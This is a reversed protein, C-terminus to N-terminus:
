SRKQLGDSQNHNQGYEREGELILRQAGKSPSSKHGLRTEEGGLAVGFDM